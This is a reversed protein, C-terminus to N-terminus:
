EVLTRLIDRGYQQYQLWGANKRRLKTLIETTKDPNGLMLHARARDLQHRNWTTSNVRGVDRPAAKAAALARDPHGGLLEVEANMLAINLPGFAQNGPADLHQRAMLTGAASAVQQYDRAEGLRNNRVAAAAARTLLKGWGFLENPTARSLKPEIEDAATACLREVEDLRGQRMMAWAQSSIAAAALPRDGIALADRLSEHLAMMALDHQRVQILYRGALGIINSRLRLAETHDAGSDHWAVHHHSSRILAPMIEALDDYEDGHYAKAMYSISSRLHGLNATDGDADGYLPRGSFSIPPAIASRMDALVHDDVAEEAPEPAASAVFWVTRVGGLAKALQHYTEMRGNGGTEIKQVVRPSLDAKEALAEQTLGRRKRLERVRDAITKTGDSM